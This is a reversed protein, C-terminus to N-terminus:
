AQGSWPYNIRTLAGGQRSSELAYLGPLSMRLAERVDIPSPRGHVIADVFDRLMAGDAGGHGQLQPPLDLGLPTEDVPLVQLRNPEPPETSSFLVEARGDARPVTWEFYGKTGQYLYRHHAHPHNNIFTCLLKVVVNSPTRLIAVMADHDAPDGTVHGHTDFCAVWELDEHMWQLVPGLSHTCYRIPEFEKRWLTTATLKRIDHVYEAELYYPKGLRDQRQLDRCTAVFGWYNPNAGLMYLARSHRAAHWLPEAEGIAWVAPVDSLVHIDRELAAIACAAHTAPPTEVLVTNVTGSDLLARYDSYFALAPHERRLSAAVEPKPDCVAVCEVEDFLGCAHFLDRGRLGYGIVGLRIPKM